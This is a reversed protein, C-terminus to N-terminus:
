SYIKVSILQRSNKKNMNWIILWFSGTTKQAFDDSCTINIIVKLILIDKDNLLVFLTVRKFMSIKKFTFNLKVLQQFGRLISYHDQLYRRIQKVWDGYDTKVTIFRYDTKVTKVLKEVNSIINHLIFLLYYIHFKKMLFCHFHALQSYSGKYKIYIACLRGKGVHPNRTFKFFFLQFLKNQLLSKGIPPTSKKQFFFPFAAM